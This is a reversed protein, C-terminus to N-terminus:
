TAGDLASLAVDLLDAAEVIGAPPFDTQRAYAGLLAMAGQVAVRALPIGEVGASQGGRRTGTANANSQGSAKADAGQMGDAALSDPTLPNENPWTM